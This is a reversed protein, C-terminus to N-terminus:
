PISRPIRKLYKLDNKSLMGNQESVLSPPEEQAKSAVSKTESPQQERQIVRIRPEYGDDKHLLDVRTGVNADTEWVIIDRSMGSDMGVLMAAMQFLLDDKVGPFRMKLLELVRNLSFGQALEPPPIISTITLPQRTDLYAGVSPLTARLEEYAEQLFQTCEPSAPLIPIVKDMLTASLPLKIRREMEALKHTFAERIKVRVQQEREWDDFMSLNTLLAIDGHAARVLDAVYWFTLTFGIPIGHVFLNDVTFAHPESRTTFTREVTDFRNLLVWGPGAIRSFFGRRYIVLRKEQRVEQISLGLIRVLLYVFLLLFAIFLLVILIAIITDM